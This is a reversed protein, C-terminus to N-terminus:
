HEMDGVLDGTPSELRFLMVDHVEMPLEASWVRSRADLSAEGLSLRQGDEAVTTVDYSGAAGADRLVFLAWSPQGAYAYVVGAEGGEEDRLLAASFYDGNTQALMARYYAGTTRDENTMWLTAGGAGVVLVAATALAALLRRRPRPPAIASLVRGEFGGPPEHTPSALLLEDAVLAMEQVFTRCAPCETTHRLLRARDDGSAIGLVSEPALDRVDKCADATM